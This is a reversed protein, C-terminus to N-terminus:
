KRLKFTTAWTKFRQIILSSSPHEDLYTKHATQFTENSVLNSRMSISEIPSHVLCEAGAQSIENNDLVLRRLNDNALDSLVKAGEDRIHNNSLNLTRIPTTELLRCLQEIDTDTLNANAICLDRTNQDIHVTAFGLELDPSTLVANM